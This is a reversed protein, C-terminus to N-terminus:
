RRENLIGFSRFRRSLIQMKPILLLRQQFFCFAMAPTTSAEREEEKLHQHFASIQWTDTRRKM